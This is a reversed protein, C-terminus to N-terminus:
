DEWFKLKDLFSNEKKPPIWRSTGYTDGCKLCIWLPEPFTDIKVECGLSYFPEVTTDGEIALNAISDDYEPSYLGHGCRAFAKSGCSKCTDPKVTDTYVIVWGDFPDNNVNTHVDPKSVSYSIAITALIFLIVFWITKNESM